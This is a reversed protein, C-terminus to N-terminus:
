SNGGMQSVFEAVLSGATRFMSRSRSMATDSTWDFEFGLTTAKDELALCLEILQMSDLPSDGGILPMTDTVVQSKDVLLAAITAFIEMKVTDIFAM